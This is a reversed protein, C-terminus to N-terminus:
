SSHAGPACLASVPSIVVRPNRSTGSIPRTRVGSINSRPQVLGAGRTGRRALTSTVSRDGGVTPPSGARRSSTSAAAPAEHLEADGRDGDGEDVAIAVAGVLFPGAGEELLMEGPEVDRKRGHELGLGLLVLPGARGHDVGIHQRDHAAVQPLQRAPKRM